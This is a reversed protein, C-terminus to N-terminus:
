DFRTRITATEVISTPIHFVYGRPVSPHEAQYLVFYYKDTHAILLFGRSHARLLRDRINKWEAASSPEVGLHDSASQLKIVFEITHADRDFRLARADALAVDQSVKLGVPVIIVAGVIIFFRFFKRFFVVLLLIATLAAWHHFESKSALFYIVKAFYIYYYYWDYELVNVNIGFYDFYTHAYVWGIFFAFLALLFVVDRLAVLYDRTTM